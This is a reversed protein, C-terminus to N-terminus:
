GKCECCKAESQKTVSTTTNNTTTEAPPKHTTPTTTVSSSHTSQSAVPLFQKSHSVGAPGPPAHTASHPLPQQPRQAMPHPLTSTEANVTSTPPPPLPTHQISSSAGSVSPKIHATSPVTSSVTGGGVAQTQTANTVQPKIYPGPEFSSHGKRRPLSDSSYVVKGDSNLTVRAGAKAPNAKRRELSNTPTIVVNQKVSSPVASFPHATTTTPPPLEKYSILESSYIQGKEVQAKQKEEKSTSQRQLETNQSDDSEQSLRKEREAQKVLSPRILVPQDPDPRSPASVAATHM